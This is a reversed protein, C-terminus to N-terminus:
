ARPKVWQSMQIDDIYRGTPLKFEGAHRSEEVFGLSAYLTRARTNNEFVGLCVKEIFDHERAWDLLTSILARGIGGGRWSQVVTIGFRGHHRMLRRKPTRFDLEGLLRACPLDRHPPCRVHQPLEAVLAIRGPDALHEQIWEREADLDNEIEDIQTVNHPSTTAAHRRFALLAPADDPETCRITVPTADRLTITTPDIRAM